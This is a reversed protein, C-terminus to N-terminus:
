AVEPQETQALHSSMASLTGPLEQPISYACSTLKPCYACLGHLLLAAYEGAAIPSVVMHIPEKPGMWHGLVVIFVMLGLQQFSNWAKSVDLWEALGSLAPVSEQGWLDAGARRATSLM